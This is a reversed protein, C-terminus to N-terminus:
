EESIKCELQILAWKPLGPCPDGTEKINVSTSCHQKGVCSKLSARLDVHCYPNITLASGPFPLCKGESRGLSAFPIAKIIHGGKCGGTLTTNPGTIAVRLCEGHRIARVPRPVVPPPSKCRKCIYKHRISCHEDNLGRTNHLSPFAYGQLTCFGISQASPEGRAWLLNQDFFAGDSWSWVLKHAHVVCDNVGAPPFGSKTCPYPLIPNASVVGGAWWTDAQYSAALAWLYDLEEISVISVLDSQNHLAQCAKRAATWGLMPRSVVRYYCSGHHQWGSHVGYDRGTYEAEGPLLLLSVCVLLKNM